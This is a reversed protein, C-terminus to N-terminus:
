QPLAPDGSVEIRSRPPSRQRKSCFNREKKMRALERKLKALADDRATGTGILAAAQAEAERRWRTLLNAGIGLERAVKQKSM